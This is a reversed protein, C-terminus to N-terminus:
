STTTTTSPTPSATVNVAFQGAKLQSDEASSSSGLLVTVKWTADTAIFSAGTLTQTTSTVGSSRPVTTSSVGSSRVDTVRYGAARFKAQYATSGGDVTGNVAFVVDWGTGGSTSIGGGVLVQSHDPIPVASPFGAPLQHQSASFHRGFASGSVGNKTVHLSCASLVLGTAAAGLAVRVVARARHRGPEIGKDMGDAARRTM